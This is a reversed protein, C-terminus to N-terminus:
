LGPLGKLFLAIGAATLLARIIPHRKYPEFGWAHLLVAVGLVGIGVEVAEPGVLPAPAGRGRPVRQRIIIRIGWVAVLLPLIIGVCGTKYRDDDDPRKAFLPM